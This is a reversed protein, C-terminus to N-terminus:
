QYQLVRLSLKGHPFTETHFVIAPGANELKIYKSVIEQYDKNKLAFHNVVPVQSYSIAFIQM